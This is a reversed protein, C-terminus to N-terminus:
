EELLTQMTVDEIDYRKIWEIVPKAAMMDNAAVAARLLMRADEPDKQLRWNRRTLELAQEADSKLELEFLAADRLHLLDGRLRAERFRAELLMTYREALGYRGADRAAIAARLLLADDRTEDALLELVENPRDRDLLFDAYVRLLYPDRPGAELAQQFHQEARQNEGLRMTIQAMTTLAWQRMGAHRLRSLASRLLDYARGAHGSVALTNGICVDAIAGGTYQTLALCDAIAARYDGTVQHIVARTLWAQANRPESELVADLDKLAAEFHHRNQLLTARLLRVEAPPDPQDWWPDLAAQAYGFYRPDSQSRGLTIYERALESALALNDPDDALRARQEALPGGGFLTRPLTELVVDDRKPTFPEAPAAASWLAAALM